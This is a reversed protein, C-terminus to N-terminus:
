NILKEIVYFVQEVSMRVTVESIGSSSDLKIVSYHTLFSEEKGDKAVAVRLVPEISIIRSSNIVTNKDLQMLM